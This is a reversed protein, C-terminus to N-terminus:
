GGAATATPSPTPTPAPRTLMAIQKETLPTVLGELSIGTTGGFSLSTPDGENEDDFSTSDVYPGVFLPDAALESLLNAVQQRNGASASFAACGITVDTNFPDSSNCANLPGGAAPIGTYTIIVDDIQVGSGGGAARAAANLRELIVAAQPQSAMATGVLSQQANLQAYFAKVPALSTVKAQLDVGEAQAAALGAEADAIRSGQVYWLGATAVVLAVALTVLVRRVKRVAVADRVVKPLLNVHPLVPAFAEHEVEDEDSSGKRGLSGLDTQLLSTKKKVVRHRPRTPVPAPASADPTSSM